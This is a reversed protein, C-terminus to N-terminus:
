HLKSQRGDVGPWSPCCLMASQPTPLSYYIGKPMADIVLQKGGAGWGIIASFFKMRPQGGSKQCSSLTLICNRQVVIILIAMDPLNTKTRRM